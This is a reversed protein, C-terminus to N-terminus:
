EPKFDPWKYELAVANIIENALELGNESNSMVVAGQGKEIYCYLLCRYGKNGGNYTFWRNRDKGRVLLGLTFSGSEPTFLYRRLTDSIIRSESNTLEIAFKALDESTTWLGAAAAEPYNYWKGNIVSGDELHGSAIDDFEDEAIPQQFSSNQLKLPSIILSDILQDFKKGSQDELLKQIVCYGGGSYSWTSGPVKTVMIAESNALKEGSLIQRLSPLEVGNPYGEFGPINLGSTHSLLQRLTVIHKKTFENDEIKWTKLYENVNTDLSFINSEVFKLAAVATFPKSISAAQFVTNTSVKNKTNAEAVGYGKTWELQHNNIVTISVGPIRLKEIREILNNTKLSSVSTSFDSHLLNITRNIREEIEASYTNEKTQQNNCGILFLIIVILLMNKFKAKM